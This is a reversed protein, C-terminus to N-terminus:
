KEETPIPYDLVKSTAWTAETTDKNFEKIYKFRFYVNAKNESKEQAIAYNFFSSMPFANEFTTNGTNNKGDALKVARLFVEYVRQGNIEKVKQNRDFSLSIQNTQDSSADPHNSLVFLMGKMYGGVGTDLVTMENKKITTTDDLSPAVEGTSVKRYQFESATYYETASQNIPDDGSIKKWAYICQGDALNDLQSHYIPISYDSEYALMRFSKTSMKVVAYAEYSSENNGGDLCSTLLVTAMAVAGLFKLKKM